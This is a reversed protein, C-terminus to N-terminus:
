RYLEKLEDMNFHRDIQQEDVVRCSMAQKTVSRSYVKEEMSGWAILRYIFCIKKQGLRFVRFINQQDNSPNWSTDLLIVRNAATLNIGQGGAKASILFVRAERNNPDNFHKIMQHRQTKATKGDLRYYHTGLKWETCYSELGPCTEGRVYHDNIQKMFFEVVDLVAVFASFILCKEGNRECANLIKFLIRLKNSPLITELDEKTILSRWWDSMVSMNGTQSDLVDDPQDDDSENNLRKKQAQKRDHEKIANFYANELVKPHTWIKRLITYDSILSKGGLKDKLPNNELFYEYLRTQVDTMPVFLVYEYKDPLFTKLLTAERRQFQEYLFLRISFFDFHFLRYFDISCDSVQVFKSLQNHLVYSRQKMITIDHQSSDKHQGNKIPNAYLNAFERETGLFSPKIFNVM